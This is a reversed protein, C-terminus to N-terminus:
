DAYEPKRASAFVQYGRQKLLLATIYGIGSSCGTILVSPNM